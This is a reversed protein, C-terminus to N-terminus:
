GKGPQQWEFAARVYDEGEELFEVLKLHRSREGMMVECLQGPVYTKNELIIVPHDHSKLADPLMIARLYDFAFSGTSSEWNAAQHEGAGLVRLWVSVPRKSFIRIGCHLGNDADMRRVIGVWWNKEGRAQVGCLKGPEAWKGLDPPIDAGLGWESQDKQAWTEPTSEIEEAVLKMINATKARIDLDEGLSMGSGLEIKTVRQCIPKLGHVVSVEAAAKTRAFRRQPPAVSLYICLHKIVTIIQAPSFERGFRQEESLMNKESLMRLETLKSLAHGGGIFRKNAGPAEKASSHSPPGDAGMDIVFNCEARPVHSWEASIAFRALIRFALELQAPPFEHPAALYLLLVKQLEARATTHAERAYAVVPVNDFQKLEAFAYMRYLPAWAKADIGVFRLYRLKFRLSAARLARALALPMQEEVDGAGKEGHEFDAVCQAYGQALRRWYECLADWIKRTARDQQHIKSFFQNFLPEAHVAAAQDLLSMVALRDDCAFGPTDKVSGVWHSLQELTELSVGEPLAALVEKAAEVDRLPHDPKGGLRKLWDLM